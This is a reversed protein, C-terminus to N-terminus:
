ARRKELMRNRIRSASGALFTGIEEARAPDVRMLQELGARNRALIEELEDLSGGGQQRLKRLRQADSRAQYICDEIERM